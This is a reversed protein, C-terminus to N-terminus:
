GNLELTLDLKSGALVGMLRWVVGEVALYKLLSSSFSNSRAEEEKSFILVRASQLSSCCCLKELQKQEKLNLRLKSL